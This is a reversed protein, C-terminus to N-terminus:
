GGSQGPLIIPTSSDTSTAVTSSDTSATTMHSGSCEANAIGAFALLGTFAILSLLVKRM